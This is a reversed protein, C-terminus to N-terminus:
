DQTAQFDTMVDQIVLGLLPPGFLSYCKNGSRTRIYMYKAMGVIRGFILKSLRKFHYPWIHFDHKYLGLGFISIM